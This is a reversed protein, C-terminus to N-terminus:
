VTVPGNPRPGCCIGPVNKLGALFTVMREPFNHIALVLATVMGVRLLGGQSPQKASTRDHHQVQSIDEISRIEHPNEYKPVFKDILMIILIGVFFSIIAYITGMERCFKAAITEPTYPVIEQYIYLIRTPDM